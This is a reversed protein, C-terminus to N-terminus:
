YYFRVTEWTYLKHGIAIRSSPDLPELASVLNEVFIFTDDDAKLIWDYTLLMDQEYAWDFALSFIIVLHLSCVYM